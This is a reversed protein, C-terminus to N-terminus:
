GVVGAGVALVVGVLGGVLLVGDGDGVCVDVLVVGVLGGVVDVGDGEDDGVEVDVVGVVVVLGLVVQVFGDNVVV